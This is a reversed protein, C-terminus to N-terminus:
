LGFSASPKMLKNARGTVIGSCAFPAFARHRGRGFLLGRSFRGTRCAPQPASPKVARGVFQEVLKLPRECEIAAHQRVLQSDITHPRARQFRRANEAGVSANKRSTTRSSAAAAVASAQGIPEPASAPHASSILRPAM